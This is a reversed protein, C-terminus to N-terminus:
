WSTDVSVNLYWGRWRAVVTFHMSGDNHIVDSFASAELVYSVPKLINPLLSIGVDLDAKQSM